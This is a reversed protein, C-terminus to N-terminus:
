EQAILGSIDFKWVESNVCTIDKEACLVAAIVNGDPSWTAFRLDGTAVLHTENHGLSFVWLGYRNLTGYRGTFALWKSDPSWKLGNPEYIGSLVAQPKQQTPEMFYINYESDLRDLGSRNIADLSALFAITKGDPSWAPFGAIGVSSDSAFRSYETALSWSRKGDSIVVDMASSGQPTIWFLTGSVRSYKEQIGVVMEPSWSFNGISIGGFPLKLLIQTGNSNPDYAILYSSREDLDSDSRRCQKLFGFRGDPLTDSYYYEVGNKCQIDQPLALQYITKNGEERYGIVGGKPDAVFVTIKSRSLWTIGLYEGSPFDLRNALISSQSNNCGIVMLMGFIISLHIYKRM